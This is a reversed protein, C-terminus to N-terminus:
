FVKVTGISAPTEDDGVERNTIGQGYGLKGNEVEGWCTLEGTSLVACTHADSAAVQIAEGGLELRALGDALAIISDSKASGLQGLNNGGWCRVAGDTLLACTHTGGAAVAIAPQGLDLIPASDPAEADGLHSGFVAERPQGLRLQGNTGWCRVAGDSLVACSHVGGLSLYIARGELLVNGASAPTENDGINDTNGYGLRGSSGRGWCRVEGTSTLVCAHNSGAAVFEAPAGVDIPRVSAPTEDDGINENDTSIIGGLGLQGHDGVGWCRVDRNSLVACTFRGGGAALQLAPGGLDISPVSAPLEDDGLNLEDGLSVQNALGLQGKHGRGWCRVEGNTLLVCTHSDGAVIQRVPGGVDVDGASAPAEDLGIPRTHGYGLQGFDNDGWCRVTGGVALVCTHEGGVAVSEIRPIPVPAAPPVGGDARSPDENPASPGADPPPLPEPPPSPPPPPPEPPIRLIPVVGVSAPTEDDGVDEQNGYGLNGDYGAGWCILERSALVACTHDRNAEIQVADGGLEVRPAASSLPRAVRSGAGLQGSRGGGWCRVAGGALLACTYDVGAAIQLVRAGLDLAPRAAPLEDDGVIERADQGLQQARGDGWCQVAGHALVACSHTDSASLYIARGGLAVSGASAPTEDDGIDEDNGYGLRGEFARGWCRVDGTRLIACSHYRGAAIFAAPGGLDVPGMSAPTEDDGINETGVYGLAGYHGVGWCRVEGGLLLACTYHDGAALQIAPGGLDLRGSAAPKEDDGV